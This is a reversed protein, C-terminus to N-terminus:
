DRSIEKVYEFINFCLFRGVCMCACVCLCVVCLVCFKSIVCSSHMNGTRWGRKGETETESEKIRHLPKIQALALKTFVNKRDYLWPCPSLLARIFSPPLSLSHPSSLSLAVNLSLSLHFTVHVSEFQRLFVLFKSFDAKGVPYTSSIYNLLPHSARSKFLCSTHFTSYLIQISMEGRLFLTLSCNQLLSVAIVLLSLCLCMVTLAFLSFVTAFFPNPALQVLLRARDQEEETDKRWM